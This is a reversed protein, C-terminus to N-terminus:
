NCTYSAAATIPGTRNYTAKQPYPCVPLTVSANASSLVLSAPANNNEVWDV